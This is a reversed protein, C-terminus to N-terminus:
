IEPEDAPLFLTPQFVCLGMGVSAATNPDIGAIGGRLKLVPQLSSRENAAVLATTAVLLAIMPSRSSILHTHPHRLLNCTRLSLPSVAGRLVKM